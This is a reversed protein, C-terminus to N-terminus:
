SEASKRRASSASSVAICSQRAVGSAPVSTAHPSQKRTDTVALFLDESREGRFAHGSFHLVLIDLAGLEDVKKKAATAKGGKRGAAKHQATTGGQNSKGSGSNGFLLIKMGDTGFLAEGGRVM